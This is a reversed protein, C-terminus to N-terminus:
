SGHAKKKEHIAIRAKTLPLVAKSSVPKCSIQNTKCTSEVTISMGDGSTGSSTSDAFPRPPPIVRQQRCRSRRSKGCAIYLGSPVSRGSLLVAFRELCRWAEWAEQPGPRASHVSIWGARSVAM